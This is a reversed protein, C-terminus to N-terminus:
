EKLEHLKDLDLYNSLGGGWSVLELCSYIDELSYKPKNLRIYEKAAQETSFHKDCDRRAYDNNGIFYHNFEPTVQWYGDGKFIEVKDETIFLPEKYKEIKHIGIAGGGGFALMHEGNCDLEFRTITFTANSRLKPNIVKDGISFITDDSLRKVSKITKYSNTIGGIFYL